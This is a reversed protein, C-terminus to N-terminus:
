RLMQATLLQEYNLQHSHYTDLYHFICMFHLNVNSENTKNKTAM